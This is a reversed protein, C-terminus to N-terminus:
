ALRAGTLSGVEEFLQHVFVFNLVTMFAEVIRRSGGMSSGELSALLFIRTM